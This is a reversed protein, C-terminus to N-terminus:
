SRGFLAAANGEYTAELPFRESVAQRAILPKMGPNMLADLMAEALAQKDGSPVIWGARGNELMWRAAGVDTAVCPIGAAMAELLTWPMGEKSSPLVFVDFAKLLTSADDRAGALVVSDHLGLRDRADEINKRERGDGILVFRADTITKKVLACVELYAPLNKAPFFNAITGFVRGGENLGLERRAADRTLLRADFEAVNIGNAVTIVNERPKIGVGRAVDTDGPHVCIIVDKWRATLKELERYLTKKWPSIDELFTWGGIRYVVRTALKSYRIACSGLISMKASNLHIADPKLDKLVRRLELASRLDAFPRIERQMHTLRRYALGQKQCARELWDGEGSLLIVDHGRERLWLAFRFLFSQVGGQEGLTVALVIRKKAQDM